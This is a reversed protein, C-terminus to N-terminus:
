LALPLKAQLKPVLKAIKEEHAVLNLLKASVKPDVQRLIEVAQPLAGIHVLSVFALDYDFRYKARFSLLKEVHSVIAIQQEHDVNSFTRAERQVAQAVKVYLEWFRGGEVMTTFDTLARLAAAVNDNNSAFDVLLLYTQPHLKADTPMLVFRQLTEKINKTMSMMSEWFFTDDIETQESTLGPNAICAINYVRGMLAEDRLAKAQGAIVTLLRASSFRDALALDPNAELEDLLFTAFSHQHSAVTILPILRSLWHLIGMTVPLGIRKMESVAQMALDIGKPERACCRIFLEFTEVTPAVGQAAMHELVEMAPLTSGFEAINFLVAAYLTAADTGSVSKAALACIELARAPTKSAMCSQILFGYFSANPHKYEAGVSLIKGLTEEDLPKNNVTLHKRLAILMRHYSEVSEPGAGSMEKFAIDFKKRAALLMGHTEKDSKIGELPFLKSNRLFFQNFDERALTRLERDKREFNEFDAPSWVVYEQEAPKDRKFNNNGGRNNGFSSLQRVPLARARM